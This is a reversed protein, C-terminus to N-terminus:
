GHRHYHEDILVVDPPTLRPPPLVDEDADLSSEKPLRKAPIRRPVTASPRKRARGNPKSILPLDEAPDEEVLPPSPSDGNLISTRPNRSRKPLPANDVEELEKRKRKVGPEGPSAPPARRKRPTPEDEDVKQKRPKQKRPRSSSPQPILQDLQPQAHHSLPLLSLALKGLPHYLPLSPAMAYISSTTIHKPHTPIHQTPPPPPTVVLKHKGDMLAAPHALGPSRTTHAPKRRRVAAPLSAPVPKAHRSDPVM